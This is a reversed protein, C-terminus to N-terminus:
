ALLRQRGPDYLPIPQRTAGVREGAIEVEFHARHAESVPLYAYLISKQVTYGWGASTAVGVVRDGALIPEGSYVAGPEDLVLCSRRRAAGERRIRVLAERGIFDGKELNVCFGLGAEFPNFDPGIDKSWYCYGKELRLSEIAHYGVDRIGWETGADRLSQYAHLAWESPVHLEYGLEGVYSVRLAIVPAMGIHLDRARMYPFITNGLAEGSARELVRRAAPGCLNIVAFASSLDAFYAGTQSAAHSRLWEFDHTAFGAGTVVYFRDEALRTVTLDAEIGGRENCCQTYLVTGIPRDLDGVVLRQLVTCADQGRVELKAFSSQDILAVRERVTQHEEGVPAFGRPSGFGSREEVPTRRPNFWNPREWGAKSGFVAGQAKLVAHLPSMRAPRASTWEEGPVHLKYYRGYAEIARAYVYPSSTQDATFRRVDLPWLDMSPAGEIIWEAMARGAGGAAAIGATFGCTVYFNDYGPAPGMLPEGDASVPIPGNVLEKVGLRELIPTRRAAMTALPEFREFNSPLLEPGFDDPIGREGFPVTDAEWGGLVLGGVEPKYYVLHDPDRLTPLDKPIEPCPETVLYQHELAVTPLAVGALRGVQRAWIGAANVVIEAEIEGQDTCVRTLRRGERRFGVVTRGEAFRVGAARAGRALSQTLSSPDVYGDGAVYVAGLVGQPDIIPCLHTAERASILRAEFGFGRAASALRRIETWREASSALRLSGVPHWGIGGAGEEKELFDFLQVSYQLLQTLNRSDRLQGVLGAAHWTSGQTLARRELVLVERKGARALHYAISCGIVGGGIIVIEAHEM